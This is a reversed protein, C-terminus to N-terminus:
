RRDSFATFEGTQFHVRTKGGGPGQIQQGLVILQQIASAMHDQLPSGTLRAVLGTLALGQTVLFDQLARPDLTPKDKPPVLAQLACHDQLARSKQRRAKWYGPNAKRWIQVRLVNASGHFYDRGEPSARWSAQSAAKSAQRCAPESCYRQHWRSRPDPEYLQQCHQCKRRRQRTM